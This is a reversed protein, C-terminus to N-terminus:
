PENVANAMTSRLNVMSHRDSTWFPFYENLQIPEVLQRTSFTAKGATSILGSVQDRSNSISVILKDLAQQPFLYPNLSTPVPASNFAYAHIGTTGAIAQAIGGGLSHGTVTINSLSVGGPSGVKLAVLQGSIFQMADVFQQPLIIGSTDGTLAARIAILPPSNFMVKTAINSTAIVVDAGVDSGTNTGKIVFTYQQKAEVPNRLLYISLGAPTTGGAVQTWGTPWWNSGTSNKAPDAVSYVAISLDAYPLAESLLQRTNMDLMAPVSQGVDPFVPVIVEPQIVVGPTPVIVQTASQETLTAQASLIPVKPPPAQYPGNSGVVFSKVPVSASFGGYLHQVQTTLYPRMDAGSTYTWNATLVGGPSSPSTVSLTFNNGSRTINLVADTQNPVVVKTLNAGIQIAAYTVMNMYLFGFSGGGFVIQASAYSQDTPSLKANALTATISYSTATVGPVAAMAADTPKLYAENVGRGSDAYNLVFGNVGSSITAGDTFGGMTSIDMKDSTAIDVSSASYSVSGPPQYMVNSGLKIQQAANITGTGQITGGNDTVKFVMQGLGPDMVYSAESGAALIAAGNPGNVNITGNNTVSTGSILIVHDIATISAGSEVLVNGTSVGSFTLKGAKFDQDKMDLTSAVLAGVNVSSGAGFVIGNPNILFVRGNSTLNGYIATGTLGLPVRNLIASQRSTQNFVVTEGPNIGFSTWNIISGPTNTITVKPGAQVMSVQGNIVVGGAPLAMATGVVVSLASIVATVLIERPISM